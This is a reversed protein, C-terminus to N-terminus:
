IKALSDKLNFSSLYHMGIFLDRSQFVSGKLDRLLQMITPVRITVEDTDLTLMNFGSRNLLSGLDQAQVFPSVHSAFGGERELEALQLSGRLQKESINM